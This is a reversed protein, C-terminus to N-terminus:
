RDGGSPIITESLLEGNRASIERKAKALCRDCTLLQRIVDDVKVVRIQRWNHELTECNNYADLVREVGCRSCAVVADDDTPQWDHGVVRCGKFPNAAHDAM